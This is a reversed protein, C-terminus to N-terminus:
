QFFKAREAAPMNRLAAALDAAQQKEMAARQKEMAALLKENADVQRQAEAIRHDFDAIQKRLDRWDSEATALSKRLADIERTGSDTNLMMTIEGDM